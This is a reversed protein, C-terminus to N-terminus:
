KTIQLFGVLKNTDCVIGHIGVAENSLSATYEAGPAVTATYKNEGIVLKHEAADTNAFVFNSGAPAKVVKPDLMCDSSITVRQGDKVALQINKVFQSQQEETAGSGPSQIEVDGVKLTEGTQPVSKKTETKKQNGRFAAGLQTIYVQLKDRYGYEVLKGGVVNGLAFSIGICLLMGLIRMINGTKHVTKKELHDDSIDRPLQTLSSKASKKKM